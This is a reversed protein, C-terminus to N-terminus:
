AFEPSSLATHLQGVCGVPDTRGAGVGASAQREFAIPGSPSTTTTMVLKAFPWGNRSPLFNLVENQAAM